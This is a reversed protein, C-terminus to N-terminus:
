QKKPAGPAEELYLKRRVREPTVYEKEEKEEKIMALPTVKLPEIDKKWDDKAPTVSNNSM